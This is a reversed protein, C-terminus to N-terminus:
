LGVFLSFLAVLASFALLSFGLITGPSSSHPLAAPSTKKPEDMALCLSHLSRVVASDGDAIARKMADRVVQSVAPGYLTDVDVHKLEEFVEHDRVYHEEMFESLDGHGSDLLDKCVKEERVSLKTM